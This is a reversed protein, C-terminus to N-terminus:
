QRIRYAKRVGDVKRIKGILKKLNETDNVYLLITGEFTGSASTSELHFASININLEESVLKSIDRVIGQRDIGYMQIGTKFTIDDASNWKVKKMREGYRSNLRIATPCNARHIELSTESSVFGIVSDGPIPNCCEAIKYVISNNTDLEITKLSSLDNNQEPIAESHITSKGRVFPKRLYNLWGSREKITVFSKVTKVEINGKSAELFLEQESNVGVYKIFERLTKEDAEAKVQAFMRELINRGRLLLKKKDEKVAQKIQSKAKATIVFSLWEEKPSQRESTLIEIQDGSKLVHNLSVLKHNTKAGICKNGLDTHIHYAFDLATSNKPMNRMEGKPTYVFIEDTFLTLKFDDLFDLANSESRQLLERIRALWDDLTSEIGEHDEKYKWHAAYGKEAIENMRESRIQVEVWKGVDSMVTTHLAEYGNAKPVSIWDRLRDPNPRYTDTIVSYAKWCDVREEDRKSDLVVRIAFLDYVEEFPIKKRLMKNWISNISKTRGIVRFRLGTESLQNKLPAIFSRIFRNREEETEKLKQTIGEFIEPETYKLVLDEMESKVAYLGLRHALPAFLFSTESAIKLRKTSPLASLTRMNHLRDALKILIVRIDESMTLLIKKFNEAQLSPSVGSNDVVGSMKTLGDIILTVKDGFLGRIDELSYDTDEVVDHLLACVISTTGLGIEGAAINAVEVPHFIYPEGSRRRMGKHAEAALNFAKRILKKDKLDIYPKSVKLLNRYRKLLEKREQETLGFEM